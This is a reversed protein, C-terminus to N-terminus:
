FIFVRVKGEIVTDREFNKPLDLFEAKGIEYTFSTRESKVMSISTGEETMVVNIDLSYRFNHEFESNSFLSLNFVHSACGDEDMQLFGGRFAFLPIILQAGTYYPQCVELLAEGPVPKGYTYKGCVEIKLEEEAVSQEKPAKLTVEFRPLVYKRVIFDHFTSRDGTKAELKYVGESAESNLQHSLQLILITSSVNMWQGIRNGKNDELTVMIIQFPSLYQLFTLNGTQGPNYIPKDTQIFTEPNHSQFAVKRKETMVFSEGRVEVRIEQVSLGEVEPAKFQSCRHFEKEVREQLLTRNHNNHLLYVTLQLAENLKLLSVCLKAESGSLIVAPFTVMFILQKQVLPAFWLSIHVITM